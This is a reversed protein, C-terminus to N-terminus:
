ATKHVDEHQRNSENFSWLRNRVEYFKGNKMYEIKSPPQSSNMHNCVDKLSECKIVSSANCSHVISSFTAMAKAGAYGEHTICLYETVVPDTLSGYYRIKIMEKGSNRSTHVNWFWRDVKMEDLEFGMICSDSMEIIKETKPFEYGCCTCTMVSLHLIEHCEPCTKNPIDQDDGKKGQPERINTIPGHKDINGAFDFVLCEKTHSKLRMGRGVMQVYLGPSMTPRALVILDIDPYDFGTTLVNANTLARYEGAKYAEIIDERERKTNQGTLCATKIGYVENLLRAMEKAHAVGTCFFLWHECHDARKTTEELIKINNEETNVAAQLENEIFEGGRKHVGQTSIRMKTKKSRLSALYGNSVLQEVSVPNIIDDFIAGEGTIKGFGLRYPTATLGIVILYPNIAKLEEILKRYTGEDKHSVLHCEDIVILDIHGVDQAKGRLSQIGAFTIPEGLQKKGVGASYIGLPANPWYQLMKEANQEILEKVHTLMLVKTEPWNQLADRCLMAVIHSKGSGTPMELCPNKGKNKEMYRYLQDIARQQYDRPKM